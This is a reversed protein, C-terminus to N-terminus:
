EEHLMSRNALMNRETWYQEVNKWLRTILRCDIPFRCPLGSIRRNRTQKTIPLMFGVEGHLDIGAIFAPGNVTKLKLVDEKSVNVRLKRHRGEGSYGLTTAKVQVFFTAEGCAPDKLYVAFDKTEAKEGLFRLSFWYRGDCKKGILFRFVTEGREGAYDKEDM